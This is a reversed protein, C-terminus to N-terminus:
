LARFCSGYPIAPLVHQLPQLASSRMNHVSVAAQNCHLHIPAVMACGDAPAVSRTCRYFISRLLGLGAPGEAAGKYCRVGLACCGSSNHCIDACARLLVSMGPIIIVDQLTAGRM